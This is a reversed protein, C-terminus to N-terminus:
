ETDIDLTNVDNGCAEESEAVTYEIVTPSVARVFLYKDEDAEFNVERFPINHEKVDLSYLKSDAGPITTYYIRATGNAAGAFRYWINYAPKGDSTTPSLRCEFRGHRQTGLYYEFNTEADANTQYNKLVRISGGPRSKLLGYAVSTKTNPIFHTDSDGGTLPMILEFRETNASSKDYQNYEENRKEIFEDFIEKVFVSRSSNGALFIYVKESANQASLNHLVSKEFCTFFAGVGDSIRDKIMEILKATDITFTCNPVAKGSKDYLQLNICEGESGDNSMYKSRWDDHQEWLPRLAEKLLTLNRNAQQTNNLLGDSGIFPIEDVPLACPIKKESAMSKNDKFVNYALKELIKEGGLNIDSDAGFCELVYDCNYRDYENDSAGRWVGYDFDTTGGGFDFIGYLYKEHENEPKYGSQELATVAYAAPESILYDVSFEKMCEDDSTITTPLSMRIGKEFSSRILEKTKKSYKVPFSMVYKLYIGNRMNNIYLGIYYAYLEIPNLKKEEISNEESLTYINQKRIDQVIAEKKEDNAWQKLNPYYAYFNETPCNKYDEFANYSVFIDECSTDPRGFSIMYKSLFSEIDMFSMITPNEYDSDKVDTSLSLSGIRIPRIENTGDQEVVVTSTTGFDIGIMGSKKIDKHPDRAVFGSDAYQERHEFVDWHGAKIDTLIGKEYSALGCRIKDCNLLQDISEIESPGSTTQNFLGFKMSPKSSNSHANTDKSKNVMSDSSYKIDFDEEAKLKFRGLLNLLAKGDNAIISMARDLYIVRLNIGGLKKAQLSSIYDTANHKKGGRTIMSINGIATETDKIHAPQIIECDPLGPCLLTPSLHLDAFIPNNFHPNIPILMRYKPYFLFLTTAKYSVVIMNGNNINNIVDQRSM